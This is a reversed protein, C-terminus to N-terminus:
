KKQWYVMLQNFDFIDVVGNKDLDAALNNGTMGWQILVMNFDILDVKGDNNVDGQPKPTSSYYGGWGGGGGGGGGSPTSLATVNGSNISSLGYQDTLALSINYNGATAYTHTQNNGVTSVHATTTAGDGFNWVYNWADSWLSSPSTNNPDSSTDTVTVLLNNMVTLFSAVPAYNVLETLPTSTSVVVTTTGNPLVISGSTMVNNAIIADTM